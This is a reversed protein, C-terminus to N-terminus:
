MSLRPISTRPGPMVDMGATQIRSSIQLDVRLYVVYGYNVACEMLTKDDDLRAGPGGYV